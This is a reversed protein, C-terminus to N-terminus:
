GLREIEAKDAGAKECTGNEPGPDRRTKSIVRQPKGLRKKEGGSQAREWVRSRSARILSFVFSFSRWPSLRALIRKNCAFIKDILFYISYSGYKFSFLGPM